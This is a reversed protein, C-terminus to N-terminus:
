FSKHFTIEKVRGLYLYQVIELRVECNKVVFPSWSWSISNLHTPGPLPHSWTMQQRSTLSPSKTELWIQIVGMNGWQEAEMMSSCVICINIQVVYKMKVYQYMVNQEKKYMTQPKYIIIIFQEIVIKFSIYLSKTSPYIKVFSQDSCKLTMFERNRSWSNVIEAAHIWSWSNM